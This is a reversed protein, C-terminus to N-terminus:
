NIDNTEEGDAAASPRSEDAIPRDFPAGIRWAALCLAAVPLSLRSVLSSLRSVLSSLRSVLSSLGPALSTTVASADCDFCVIGCDGGDCGRPQYWGPAAGTGM